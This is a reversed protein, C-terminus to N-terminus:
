KDASRLHESLPPLYHWTVSKLEGWSARMAADPLLWIVQLASGDDYAGLVGSTSSGERHVDPPLTSISARLRDRIEAPVIPAIMRDFTRLLEADDRHRQLEIATVRGEPDIEIALARGAADLTCSVSRETPQTLKAACASALHSMMAPTKLGLRAPAVSGSRSSESRTNTCAAGIDSLALLAVLQVALNSM